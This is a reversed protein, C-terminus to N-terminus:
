EPTERVLRVMGGWSNYSLLVENKNDFAIAIYSPPNHGAGNSDTYFSQQQYANFHPDDELYDYYFSLASYQAPSCHANFISYLEKINPLRWLHQSEGQHQNEQEATQLLQQRVKDNPSGNIYSLGLITPQGECQNQADSFTQGYPCFQWQLGTSMDNVVKIKGAETELIHTEFRNLQEPLNQSCQPAAYISASLCMCAWGFIYKM